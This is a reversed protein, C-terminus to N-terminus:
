VNEKCRRRAKNLFDNWKRQVTARSIGLTEAIQEQPLREFTTLFVIRKTVSCFGSLLERVIVRKLPEEFDERCAGILTELTDKEMFVERRHDRLHNLCLNTAIRYFWTYPSSEGRFSERNEIAKIFVTHTIDEADPRSRVYRMCRRLILPAYRRYYGNFPEPEPLRHPSSMNVM